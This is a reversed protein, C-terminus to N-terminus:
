IFPHMGAPLSLNLSKGKGIGGSRNSSWTFELVDGYPIDVDTANGWAPQYQGEVYRIAALTISANTPADNQPRVKVSIVSVAEAFTDNAHVTISDSGSWDAKPTITVVGDAGVTATVNESHDFTYSLVDGKDIDAFYGDLDISQDITDEDMVIDTFDVICVPPDNVNMVTLTFDYITRDSAPLM